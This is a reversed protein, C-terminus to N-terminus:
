RAAKSLNARTQRKSLKRKPSATKKKTRVVGRSKTAIGPSDILEILKEARSRPVGLRAATELPTAFRSTIKFAM